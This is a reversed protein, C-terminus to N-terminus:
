PPANAAAVPHRRLAPFTVSAVTGGGPGAELALTAGHADAIWRAIPLGLGSGGPEMVRAEAGRFFRDFVRPEDDPGIGIGTDAVELRAQGRVVTVRVDVVGGPTTYRLANDALIGLLRDILVPDLSAPAEELMSVTLEVGRRAALPYWVRLADAVVDDLYSAALRASGDADARALQLLEDVLRAARRLDEHVHQLADYQGAADRPDLLALEVGGLMRAVPTRLEHAADALFRRQQGLVAAHQDLLLNFRTGLRGIEDTPNSVPLRGGPGGPSSPHATMREAAQAMMGIPRLTRGAMWFGAAAALIVGLPVGIILWRDIGGLSRELPAASAYVRITWGPSLDAALTSRISRVPQPLSAQPDAKAGAGAGSRAPRTRFAVQGDPAVFEVIRDPFVVEDAIHRLTAAVDRYEAFELRYFGSVATASNVLSARFEAALTSRVTVRVAVAFALLAGLVSVAYWLALRARISLGLASDRPPTARRADRGAAVTSPVAGVSDRM